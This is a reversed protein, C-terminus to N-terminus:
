LYPCIPSIVNGNVYPDFADGLRQLALVRLKRLYGTSAGKSFRNAIWPLRALFQKGAVAACRQDALTTNQGRL